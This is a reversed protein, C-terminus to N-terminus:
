STATPNNQHSHHTASAREVLKALNWIRSVQFLVCDVLDSGVGVSFLVSTYISSPSIKILCCLSAICMIGRVRDILWVGGRRGGSMIFM